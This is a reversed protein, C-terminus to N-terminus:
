LNLEFHYCNNKPEDFYKSVRPVVSDKFLTTNTANFSSKGVDVVSIKSPDACHHSVNICGVENIKDVMDQKISAADANIQALTKGQADAAFTDIVSDGAAAYLAKQSAINQAVTHAPNVLNNFMARAQDTASRATSTITAQPQGAARLGDKLIDVLKSSVVSANANAGYNLTVDAISSFDVENTYALIHTTGAPDEALKSGDIHFPGYTGEATKAPIDKTFVASGLRNSYDSGSAFNVNLTRADELEGGKVEYSVNLGGKTSDWSLKPLVQVKIQQIDDVIVQSDYLGDAVNAVTLDAQFVDGKPDTPIIVNRWATAGGTDFSALGLGNMSNAELKQQGKKQSRLLVKFYDNYKTGFYGGPVESTVFRYRLKVANTGVDTKFTRSISQPGEGATGLQLDNNTDAAAAFSQAQAAQKQMQKAGEERSAPAKTAQPAALAKLTAIGTPAPGPNDVHSVIKVPASGIDWGDTGQSFDNNAIDSPDNLGTMKITITGDSLVGGSAGTINNAAIASILFTRDPVNAFTVSGTSTDLTAGVTDDDGLALRVTTAETFAAGNADVLNVTVNTLGAWVTESYFVSRGQDDYSSFGIVNKGNVLANTATVTNNAIAVHTSNIANGNITVSTDAPDNSFNGSALHFVLDNTMANLAQSNVGTLSVANDPLFSELPNEPEQPALQVGFNMNIIDLDNSGVRGDHNVDGSLPTKASHQGWSQKVVAIDKADVIGDSNADGALVVSNVYTGKTNGQRKTTLQYPVDLAIKAIAFSDDSGPVDNQHQFALDYNPKSAAALKLHGTDLGARGMSYVGIFAKGDSKGTVESTSVMFDKTEQRTNKPIVGEYVKVVGNQGAKPMPAAQVPALSSVLLAIGFLGFLAAFLGNKPRIRQRQTTLQQTRGFLRSPRIDAM